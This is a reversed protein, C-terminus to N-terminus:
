LQFLNETGLGMEWVFDKMNIWVIAHIIELEIKYQSSLVLTSHRNM